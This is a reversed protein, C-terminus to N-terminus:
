FCPPTPKSASLEALVNAPLRAFTRWYVDQEGGERMSVVTGDDFAFVKRETTLLVYYELHPQKGMEAHRRIRHELGREKLRMYICTGMVYIRAIDSALVMKVDVASPKEFEFHEGYELFFEIDM